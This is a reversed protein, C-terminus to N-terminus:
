PRGHFIPCLFLGATRLAARCHFLTATRVQNNRIRGLGPHAKKLVPVTVKGFDKETIADPVSILDGKDLLEPLLSHWVRHDSRDWCSPAARRKDERSLTPYSCGQFAWTSSDAHARPGESQPFNRQGKNEKSSLGFTRHPQPGPGCFLCTQKTHQSFSFAMTRRTPSSSRGWVPPFHPCLLSSNPLVSTEPAVGLGQSWM